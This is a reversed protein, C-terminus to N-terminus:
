LKCYDLVPFLFLCRKGFFPQLTKSSGHHFYVQQFSFLLLIGLVFSPLFTIVALSTREAFGREGELFVRQTYPDPLLLM